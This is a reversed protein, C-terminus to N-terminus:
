DGVGLGWDGLGLGLDGVGSEWDGLRGNGIGFEVVELTLFRERM